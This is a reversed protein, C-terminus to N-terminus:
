ATGRQSHQIHRRCAVLPWKQGAAYCSPNGRQTTIPVIQPEPPVPVLGWLIDVVPRPIWAGEALGLVQRAEFNAYVIMGARELFVLVPLADLIEQQQASDSNQPLNLSKTEWPIAANVM